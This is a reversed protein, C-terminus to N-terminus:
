RKRKKNSPQFDTYPINPPNPYAERIAKILCKPPRRRKGKGGIHYVNVMFWWYFINRKESPNMNPVEKTVFWCEPAIEELFANDIPYVNVVCDDFGYGHKKCLRRNSTCCVNRWDSSNENNDNSYGSDESESDNEASDVPETEDERPHQVVLRTLPRKKLSEKVEMLGHHRFNTVLIAMSEPCGSVRPLFVRTFKLIEIVSGIKLAGMRNNLQTAIKVTLINDDQDAVHLTYQKEQNLISGLQVNNYKAELATVVVVHSLNGVDHDDCIAGDYVSKAFGKTLEPVPQTAEENHLSSLPLTPPFHVPDHSV